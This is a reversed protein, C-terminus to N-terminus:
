SCFNVLITYGSQIFVQTAEMAEIAEKSKLNPIDIGSVQEMYQKIMMVDNSNKAAVPKEEVKKDIPKNEPVNTNSPDTPVPLSKKLEENEKKLLENEDQIRKAEAEEKAKKATFDFKTKDLLASFKKDSLKEIEAVSSVVEYKLLEALRTQIKELLLRQKELKIRKKENDIDREINRLRKESPELEKTIFRAAYNNERIERLHDANLDRRRENVEIRIRKIFKRAKTVKKLGEHDKIGTVNLHSAAEKITNIRSLTLNQKALKNQSIEIAQM